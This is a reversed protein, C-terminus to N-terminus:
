KKIILGQGSGNGLWVKAGDERVVKLTYEKDLLTKIGKKYRVFVQASAGKALTPDYGSVVLQEKKGANLLAFEVKGDATRTRSIQDSGKAYTWAM